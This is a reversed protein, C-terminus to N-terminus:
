SSLYKQWISEQLPKEIELYKPLEHKV